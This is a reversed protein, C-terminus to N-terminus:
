LVKVDEYGYKKLINSVLYKLDEGSCDISELRQAIEEVNFDNIRAEILKKIQHEKLIIKKRM